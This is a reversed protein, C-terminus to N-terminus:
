IRAAPRRSNRIREPENRGDPLLVQGRPISYGLQQLEQQEVWKRLVSKRACITSGIKFAPLRSKEYLYYITRRRHRDGFIFEAIEAAGYLLDKAFEVEATQTM